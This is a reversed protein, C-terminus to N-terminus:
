FPSGTSIVNDLRLVSGGIQVFNNLFTTDKLRITGGGVWFYSGNFTCRDLSPFYGTCVNSITGNADFMTNVFLRAGQQMQVVVGPEVTVTVGSPITTDTAIVIPSNALAWTEDAAARGTQGVLVLLVVVTFKTVAFRIPKTQNEGHSAAM